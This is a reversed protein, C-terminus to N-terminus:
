PARRPTPGSVIRLEHAPHAARTTPADSPGHGDAATPTTNASLRVTTVTAAPVPAAVPVVICRRLPRITAVSADTAHTPMAMTSPTATSPATAHVPTPGKDDGDHSRQGHQPAPQQHDRRARRAVLFGRRGVSAGLGRAARTGLLVGVGRG